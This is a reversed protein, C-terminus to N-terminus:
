VVVEYQYGNVECWMQAVSMFRFWKCGGPYDVRYATVAVPSLDDCFTTILIRATM